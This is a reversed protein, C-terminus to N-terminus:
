LKEVPLGSAEVLRNLLPHLTEVRAAYDADGIQNGQLDLHQVIWNRSTRDWWYGIKVADGIATTKVRNCPCHVPHSENYPHLTNM